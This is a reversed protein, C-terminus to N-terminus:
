EPYLVFWSPFREATAVLPFGNEEIFRLVVPLVDFRVGNIQGEPDDLFDHGALVGGPKILPAWAAIDEEIAIKHHQADLYVFDFPAMEKLQIRKKFLEAVNLSTDRVFIARKSDLFPRLTIQAMTFINEHTEEEVNAIDDYEPGFETYPDVLYIKEGFWNECINRAHKGYKVGVEAGIGSLNIANLAHPFGDRSKHQFLYKRFRGIREDSVRPSSGYKKTLEKILELNEKLKEEGGMNAGTEAKTGTWYGTGAGLLVM